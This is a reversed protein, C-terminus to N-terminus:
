SCRVTQHALGPCGETEKAGKKKCYETIFKLLAVSLGMKRFPRAIFFCVISWVPKEDVKKLIRSRGLVPYTERPSVSCWCVPEKGSYAIIGPIEGSKIIRKMVEKNAEGKQKEFESRKLRWWMCWCGSGAGREPGFLTELDDWRDPTLPHFVPAAATM